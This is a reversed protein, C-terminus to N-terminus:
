GKNEVRIGLFEEANKYFVMSRQEEDLGLGELFDIMAGPNEFPYDTGLVIHDIGLAKVTCEFAEESMNGSTSVWINNKFYFGLKQKNKLRNNPIFAFRNEMRKLLFPLGEGLHGLVIKLEPVEDFLGGIIMKTITILTDVTFGLGPGAVSFGSDFVRSSYELTPHLYVYVGLEAAKQFIPRYFDEDPSTQGYNSHTEWAVFGYEKVCRELEECAEPVAMVPLVASGLFRGPYQKVMRNIADNTERCARICTDRDLMEVVPASSIVSTTIGCKDMLAIREESTDLLMELRKGQPEAISSNWHIMDASKDYYPYDKREALADIVCSDYFHYELDIRQM